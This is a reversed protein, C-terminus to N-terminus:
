YSFHNESKRWMTLGTKKVLYTSIARNVVGLVDGVLKPDKALLFRLPFPFSLVWQRLPKHPFVEDLLHASSEAM